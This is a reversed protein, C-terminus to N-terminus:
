YNALLRAGYYGALWAAELEGHWGCSRAVSSVDANPGPQNRLWYAVGAKHAALLTRETVECLNDTM